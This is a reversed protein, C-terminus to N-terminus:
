TVDQEIIFDGKMITLVVTGTTKELDYSYVGAKLIMQTANKTLTLINTDSISLGADMTFLLIETQTKVEFVKLKFTSGTIDVPVTKATDSWYKFIRSFTDGRKCKIDHVVAVSSNSESAM